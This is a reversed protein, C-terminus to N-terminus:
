YIDNIGCLHSFILQSGLSVARFGPHIFDYCSLYMKRDSREFATLLCARVNEEVITNVSDWIVVGTGRLVRRIENNYKDIDDPYIDYFDPTMELVTRSQYLWVIKQQPHAALSKKILPLLKDEVLSVFTELNHTVDNTGVHHATLGLLIFDPSNGDISTSTAWRKFDDVVHERILERWYFSVRLGNLLTSTVNRDDHFYYDTFATSNSTKSTMRDYDPIWRLFSLFHQRITSDGVFAFHLPGHTRRGESSLRDFCKVVDAQTYKKVPMRSRHFVDIDGHSIFDHKIDFHRRDFYDLVGPKM